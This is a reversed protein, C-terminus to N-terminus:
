SSVILSMIDGIEDQAGEILELSADIGFESISLKRYSSVKELMALDTVKSDEAKFSITKSALHKEESYQAHYHAVIVIDAFDAEEGDRYNDNGILEPIRVLEDDMGWSKLVLCGLRASIKSIMLQFKDKDALVEPCDETYRLIPLIGIDHVLGALLARDPQVRSTIRGLVYAMAAVKASHRWNEKLAKRVIPNRAGFVQQVIFSTVLNRVVKIGIRSIATQCDEIVVSSRYLSSNAVQVVRMALVPDLQIIKAIQHSSKSEDHVASRIKFAVEPLSPIQLKGKKFDTKITQILKKLPDM